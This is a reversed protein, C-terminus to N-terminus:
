GGLMRGPAPVVCADADGVYIRSGENQALWIEGGEELYRFGPGAPSLMRRGDPVLGLRMSAMEAADGAAARVRAEVDRQAAVRAAEAAARAPARTKEKEWYALSEVEKVVAMMPARAALVRAHEIIAKEASGVRETAVSAAQAAALRFPARAAEKAAKREAAKCLKREERALEPASKEM